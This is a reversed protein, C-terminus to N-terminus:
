PEPRCPTGGDAIQRAIRAASADVQREDIRGATVAELLATIVAEAKNTETFIVVDAGATVAAVAADPLPLGVGGMGLADTMVLSDEYGLQERLFRYAPASLSAPVGDTLDPVQLHGVMVGVGSGSLRRYPVLDRTELDALPPTVALGVHTDTSASGHGPFHKLVPLIGVAQWVKVYQEALVAVDEGSGPFLRGHGLPDDGTPPRVDVVPALVLDIGADKVKAAHDSLTRIRDGETMAAMDAQSPLRGLAALRQVSGGEEDTSVLLGHPSVADLDAIHQHLGGVFAASPKMLVVGGVGLERAVTLASQWDSGYVSPWVMMAVRQRLPWSGVCEDIQDALPPSVTSAPDTSPAAVLSSSAPVTTSAAVSSPAPTSVPISAPDTSAAPGGCASLALAALLVTSAGSRSM